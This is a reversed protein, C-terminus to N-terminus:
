PASSFTSQLMTMGSVPAAISNTLETTGCSQRTATNEAREPLSTMTNGARPPRQTRPVLKGNASSLQFAASIATLSSLTSSSPHKTRILAGSRIQGHLLYSIMKFENTLAGKQVYTHHV